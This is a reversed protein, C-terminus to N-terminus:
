KSKSGVRKILFEMTLYSVVVSSSSPPSATADAAEDQDLHFSRRCVSRHSFGTRSARITRVPYLLVIVVAKFVVIVIGTFAKEISIKGEWSYM